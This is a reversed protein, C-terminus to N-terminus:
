SCERFPRSGLQMGPFPPQWPFRIECRYVYVPSPLPFVSNSTRLRQTPPGAARTPVQSARRGTVHSSPIHRSGTKKQKNECTKKAGQRFAAALLPLRRLAVLTRLLRPRLRRPSTRAEQRPPTSALEVQTALSRRTRVSRRAAAYALFTSRVEVARLGTRSRTGQLDRSPAGGPRLTARCRPARRTM